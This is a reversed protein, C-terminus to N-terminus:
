VKCLEDIKEYYQQAYFDFTEAINKRKKYMRIGLKLLGYIQKVSLFDARLNRMARTLIKIPGGNTYIKWLAESYLREMEKPSLQEPKYVCHMTDYLSWDYSLIRNEKQLREFLATGPFPTLLSLGVADYPMSLLFEVSQQIYSKSDYEDGTGIIFTWGVIINADQLRKAVAKARELNIRKNYSTDLIKQVGSELGFNMSTWGAKAMLGILGPNDALADIRCPCDYSLDDLGHDLIAKCIAEVRKPDVIFNDAQFCIRKYGLKEKLYTIEEILNSISRPRWTGGYFNQISCFTCNYPCGRSENIIPVPIPVKKRAPFPLTNLDVLPGRKNHVITNGMKYSLNEVESLDIKGEIAKALQVMANEGEGRIVFEIGTEKLVEDSCFTPHYGGLVIQLEPNEKKALKVLEKTYPYDATVVSFGVLEPSTKEIISQINSKTAFGVRVEHESNELVAAIYLLGLSIRRPDTIAFSFGPSFVQPHLLLVRM